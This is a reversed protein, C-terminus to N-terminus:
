RKKTSWPVQLKFIYVDDATAAVRLTLLAFRPTKISTSRMYGIRNLFYPVEHGM